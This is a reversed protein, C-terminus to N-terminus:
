RGMSKKLQQDCWIWRQFNLYSDYGVTFEGGYGKIWPQWIAYLYPDPTEIYWCQSLIYPYIGKLVEVVKANNTTINQSVIKFAENCRQDDIMSQNYLNEPRFTQMQFPAVSPMAFISMENHKRSQSISNFVAQERIDLKLDVGIRSWYNKVIALLDAKPLPCIIETKFGTPYGAEALLQKAKEPDYKYNEQVDTPMKDLPVFLDAFEPFPAVPTSFIDANGGYYLNTIAERDIAMALARRVRIDKFPLEPKGIRMFIVNQHAAELYKSEKLEPNTKKLSNRDEWGVNMMWDIKGTRMAAMRTSIDLIILYSMRDLYPLQNQPHLVDKMWYDPNRIYSLSSSPVYDTLIFPGTGVVNRWDRMDGYKDVVEKPIIQASQGTFQLLIGVNGPTTKVVVTREDSATISVLLQRYSVYFQSMPATFLRNLSFVVDNANMERGNVPPKDQFRVGKRIRYILSTDDPIEWSEALNGVELEPFFTGRILYSAQGTGQSGKEWDGILLEDHTVMVWWLLGSNAILTDDFTSVDATIAGVFTGGYKPEEKAPPTVSQTTKKACSGLLLTVVLLVGIIAWIRKQFM